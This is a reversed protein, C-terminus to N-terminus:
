KDKEWYRVEAPKPPLTLDNDIANKLKKNAEEDYWWFAIVSQIERGTSRSDYFVGTLVFEPM